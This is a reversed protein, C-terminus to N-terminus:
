GYHVWRHGDTHGLPKNCYEITCRALQSPAVHASLGDMLRIAVQVYTEPQQINTRTLEGPFRANLYAGLRAVEEAPHEGVLVQHTTQGPPVLNDTTTEHISAVEAHSIGAPAESM